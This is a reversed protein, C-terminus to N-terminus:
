FEFVATNVYSSSPSSLYQIEQLLNENLSPNPRLKADTEYPLEGYLSHTVTACRTELSAPTYINPAAMM